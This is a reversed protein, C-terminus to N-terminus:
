KDGLPEVHREDNGSNCGLRTVWGLMPGVLQHALLQVVLVVVLSHTCSELSTRNTELQSLVVLM